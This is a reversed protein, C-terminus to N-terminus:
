NKAKLLATTTYGSALILIISKKIEVYKVEHVEAANQEEVSQMEMNSSVFTWCGFLHHYQMFYNAYHNCNSLKTSHLSTSPKRSHLPIADVRSAQSAITTCIM